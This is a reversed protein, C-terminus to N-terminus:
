REATDWRTTSAPSRCMMATVSRATTAGRPVEPRHVTLHRPYRGPAGSIKALVLHVINESLEHDGGSIWMKSGFLRYSGDDQPEARTTIDALSSGAQPESLCM